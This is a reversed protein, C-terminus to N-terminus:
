IKLIRHIIEIEGIVWLYIFTTKLFLLGVDFHISENLPRKTSFIIEDNILANNKLISKHLVTTSSFLGEPKSYCM